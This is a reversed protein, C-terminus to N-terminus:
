GEFIYPAGKINRMNSFVGGTVVPFARVTVAPPSLFLSLPIMLGGGGIFNRLTRAAFSFPVHGL